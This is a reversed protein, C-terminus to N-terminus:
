TIPTSALAIMQTYYNEYLNMSHHWSFQEAAIRKSVSTDIQEVNEVAELAEFINWSPVVFGTWPQVIEEVSGWAYAVIPCWCALAEILTLGFPEEWLSTFLLAYADCMMMKVERQSLSGHYHISGWLEPLIKTDFYESGYEPVKGAIHLERWSMKAIQIADYLWKEQVIRGVRVLPREHLTIPNESREKEDFREGFPHNPREGEGWDRKCNRKNTNVWNYITTIRAEPMALQFQDAIFESIAIWSAHKYDKTLLWGTLYPAWFGLHATTVIPLELRKAFEFPLYHLSHNAIIDVDHEALQELANWYTYFKKMTSVNAAQADEPHLTWFSIEEYPILTCYTTDSDKHACLVVEHGRMAMAEIFQHTFAEMGGAYPQRIPYRPLSICGIKM